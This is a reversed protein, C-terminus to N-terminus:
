HLQLSACACACRGNENNKLVVHPLRGLFETFSGKLADEFEPEDEYGLEQCMLQGVQEVPLWECGNSNGDGDQTFGSWLEELHGVLRSMEQHSLDMSAGLLGEGDIPRGM